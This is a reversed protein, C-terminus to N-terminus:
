EIFERARPRRKMHGGYPDRRQLRFGLMKRAAVVLNVRPRIRVISGGDDCDHVHGAVSRWHSAHFQSDLPTGRSAIPSHDVQFKQRHGSQALLPSM